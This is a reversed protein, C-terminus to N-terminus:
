TFFKIDLFCYSKIFKNIFYIVKIERIHTNIYLTIHQSHGSDVIKKLLEHVKKNYLPEGGFLELRTLNASLQVIEELQEQSWNREVQDVSYYATGLMKQLQVADSHWRSSDGPHCVRCKANCVNGNKITLVKPGSLYSKDRISAIISDQYGAGSAFAYESRGSEPDFL